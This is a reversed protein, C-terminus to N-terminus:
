WARAQRASSLVGADAHTKSCTKNLLSSQAAAVHLDKDDKKGCPFAYHINLHASPQMDVNLMKLISSGDATPCCQKMVTCCPQSNKIKCAKRSSASDAYTTCAQFIETFSCGCCGTTSHQAVRSYYRVEAEDADQHPAM